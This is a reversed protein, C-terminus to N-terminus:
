ASPLMMGAMMVVWMLCLLLVHSADWRPIMMWASAGAMPGYMDRAMAVIWAWCAVPFLILLVILPGRHHQLALELATPPREDLPPSPVGGTSRRSIGTTRAAPTTGPSDSHTSTARRPM